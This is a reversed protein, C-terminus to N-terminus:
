WVVPNTTAGWWYQQNGVPVATTAASAPDISVVKRSFSSFGYLVGAVEDYGLGYLQQQGTVGVTRATRQVPDVVMLVDNGGGTVTWYLNGDPLGVVDGSTTLNNDRYLESTACGNALDVITLAHDAGVVLRGDSLFTMGTLRAPVDCVRTVQATTPNVSWITFSGSGTAEFSGAYLHGQLDIAIDAMAVTVRNPTQFRGVKTVVATAPEVSFLDINSHAYMAFTAVFPDTEAPEATDPPDSDPPDSDPVADVVDTDVTDDTVPPKGSGVSWDSCASATLFLPVLRRM